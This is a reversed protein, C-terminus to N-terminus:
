AKQTKPMRLKLGESHAKPGKSTYSKQLRATTKFGFLRICGSILSHSNAVVFLFNDTCFQHEQNLFFLCKRCIDVFVITVYIVICHRNRRCAWEFIYHMNVVSSHIASGKGNIEFNQRVKHSFIKLCINTLKATGM